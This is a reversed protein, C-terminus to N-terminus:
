KDYKNKIIKFKSKNKTKKSIPIEVPSSISSTFSDIQNIIKLRHSQGSIFKDSM